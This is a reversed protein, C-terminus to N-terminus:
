MNGNKTSNFIQLQHIQEKVKEMWFDGDGGFGYQVARIMGQGDIIWTQPILPFDTYRSLFDSALLIPFTYQSERVFEEVDTPNEDISVAFLIIDENSEIDEYLKQVYPLESLCYGCWTAWFVWVVTKGLLRDKTWLKGNLDYFKFDPLQKSWQEFPGTKSVSITEQEDREEITALFRWGKETGGIKEWEKRLREVLETKHVDEGSKQGWYMYERFYIIADGIRNQELALRTKWKWVFAMDQQYSVKEMHSANKGPRNQETMDEIIHLTQEANEWRKMKAYADLRLKNVRWQVILYRNKAQKQVGPFSPQSLIHQFRKQEEQIVADLMSLAREYEIGIDILARAMMFKLPPFTQFNYKGASQLLKEMTELLEQRPLPEFKMLAELKQFLLPAGDPYKKLYPQLVELEKKHWERIKEGDSNGPYQPLQRRVRDSAIYPADLPYKEMMEDEIRRLEDWDKILKYGTRLVRWWRYSERDDLKEIRHLDERIDNRIQPFTKPSAGQFINQWLIPFYRYYLKVDGIRFTQKMKELVQKRWEDKRIRPYYGYFIQTQIPCQMLLEYAYKEGKKADKPDVELYRYALIMLSWPHHPDIKLAKRVIHLAQDIDSKVLLRAYLSMFDPNNPHKEMLTKYSAIFSEPEVGVAEYQIIDQYERHLHISLPFQKLKNRFFDAKVEPEASLYKQEYEDFVRQIELPPVCSPHNAYMGGPQIILLLFLLTKMLEKWILTNCHLYPKWENRQSM